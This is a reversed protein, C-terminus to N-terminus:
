SRPRYFATRKGEVSRYVLDFAGSQDLVHPWTKCGYKAPVQGPYHQAIWDAAQDLQVWGEVALEIAAERLAGVIGAIPWFVTGDPKIGHVFAEHFEASQVANMAAQHYQAISKAWSQLERLHMGIRELAEELVHQAARCGDLTSFNHDGLFQHVLRNRLIVLDKLAAETRDYDEAFMGQTVEFRIGEFDSQPEPLAAEELETKVKILYSGVLQGMLMGLTKRSVAEARDVVKQNLSSFPTEIRHHAMIFKVTLECAQLRLICQGLLRQVEAQQPRLTEDPRIDM